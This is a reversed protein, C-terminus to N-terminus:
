SIRLIKLPNRKKKIRPNVVHGPHLIVHEERIYTIRISLGKSPEGGIQRKTSIESDRKSRALEDHGNLSLSGARSGHVYICLTYISM